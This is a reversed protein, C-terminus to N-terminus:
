IHIVPSRVMRRWSGALGCGRWPAARDDATGSSAFWLGAPAYRFSFRKATEPPHSRGIMAPDTHPVVADKVWEVCFMNRPNRASTEFLAFLADPRLSFMSM